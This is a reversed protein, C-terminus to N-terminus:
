TKIMLLWKRSPDAQAAANPLTWSSRTVLGGFAQWAEKSYWPREKELRASVLGLMGAEDALFPLVQPNEVWSVAMIESHPLNFNHLQSPVIQLGAGM